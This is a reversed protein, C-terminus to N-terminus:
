RTLAPWMADVQERLGILSVLMDRLALHVGHTDGEATRFPDVAAKGGRILANVSGHESSVVLEIMGNQRVRETGDPYYDATIRMKGNTFVLTHQNEPLTNDLVQNWGHKSAAEHLWDLTERFSRLEAM